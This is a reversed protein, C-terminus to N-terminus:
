IKKAGRVAQKRNRQGRGMQLQRALEEDKKEKEKTEIIRSWFGRQAEVEAKDAEEEATAKEKEWVRAYSFAKNQESLLRKKEAMQEASAEQKETREILDIMDKASYTIESKTADEPAESFLAQAGFLLLSEVNNVTEEEDDGGKARLDKSDVILQELVMKKKGTEIIKEECTSKVMLKFCMVKRTQGIRHARSIAQLDQFPNFDADFLIVTDATALNIGVGGARTTLIFTFVDSAAANYADINKQRQAQSTSGDLRVYKVKMGELFREIVNLVIVFQSFMLVRHGRERLKPL